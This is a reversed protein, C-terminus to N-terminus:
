EMDAIRSHTFFAILIIGLVVAPLMAVLLVRNRIGWHRIM